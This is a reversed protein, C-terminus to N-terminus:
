RTAIAHSKQRARLARVTEADLEKSFDVAAFPDKGPSCIGCKGGLVHCYKCATCTRCATCPFSGTCTGLPAPAQGQRHLIAGYSVAAAFVLCAIALLAKM